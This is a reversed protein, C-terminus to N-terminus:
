KVSHVERIKSRSYLMFKYGVYVVYCMELTYLLYGRRVHGDLFIFEKM